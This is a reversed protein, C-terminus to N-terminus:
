ADVVAVKGDAIGSIESSAWPHFRVHANSGMPDVTFPAFSFSQNCKFM